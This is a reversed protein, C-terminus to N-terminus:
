GGVVQVWVRERCSARGIETRSGLEIKGLPELFGTLWWRQFIDAAIAHPGVGRLKPLVLHQHHKDSRVLPVRFCKPGDPCRPHRTPLYLGHKRKENGQHELCSERATLADQRILRDAM